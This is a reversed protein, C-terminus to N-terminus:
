LSHMDKWETEIWDPEMPVGLVDCGAIIIDNLTTLSDKGVSDRAETLPLYVVYEDYCDPQNM